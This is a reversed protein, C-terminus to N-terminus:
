HRNLYSSFPLIEAETVGDPRVVSVEEVHKPSSYATEV